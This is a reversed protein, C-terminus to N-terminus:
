YLVALSDSCRQFQRLLASDLKQFMPDNKAEERCHAEFTASDVYHRNGLSDEIVYRYESLVSDAQPNNGEVESVANEENCSVCVAMLAMLVYVLNKM